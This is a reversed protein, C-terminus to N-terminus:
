GSAVNIVLYCKHGEILEGLRDYKEGKLGTCPIDNATTYETQIDEDGHIFIFKEVLGTVISKGFGKISEM